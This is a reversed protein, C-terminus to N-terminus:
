INLQAGQFDIHRDYDTLTKLAYTAIRDAMDNGTNHPNNKDKGHSPIHIIDVNMEARKYLYRMIFVLDSNKYKETKKDWETIIGKANASDTIITVNKMNLRIVVLLAFIIALYEGRQSTAECSTEDKTMLEEEVYMYEEDKVLGYIRLMKPIYVAYSSKKHLVTGGDTYIFTRERTSWDIGDITDFNTCNEFKKEDPLTNDIMPSPHTWEHINQTGKIFPKIGQADRGWLLFHIGSVRKTLATIISIVFNRWRDKHVNKEGIITTLSMNLLMVGQYLWPRLDASEITHGLRTLCKKINIFSKPMGGDCSFSLGCADGKTPYPDQGIIVVKVDDPNIVFTSFIQEIPPTITNVDSVINIVNLGQKLDSEHQKFIEVWEPHVVKLANVIRDAISM